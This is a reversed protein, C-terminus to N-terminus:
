NQNAILRGVLAFESDERLVSYGMKKYFIVMSLMVKHIDMDKYKKQYSLYGGRFAVLMRKDIERYSLLNENNLWGLIYDKPMIIIKHMFDIAWLANEGKEAYSQTAMNAYSMLLDYEKNNNFSRIKENFLKRLKKSKRSVNSEQNRIETYSKNIM